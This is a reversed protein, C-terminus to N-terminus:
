VGIVQPKGGALTTWHRRPHSAEWDDGAVQWSTILAGGVVTGSEPTAQPV